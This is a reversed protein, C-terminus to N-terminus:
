LHDQHRCGPDVIDAAIFRGAHPASQDARRAVVVVDAGREVLAEVVGRGLGRTGGTVMATKGNLDM